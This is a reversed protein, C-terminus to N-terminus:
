NTLCNRSISMSKMLKAPVGEGTFSESNSHSQPPTELKTSVTNSILDIIIIIVINELTSMNSRFPVSECLPPESAEKVRPDRQGPDQRTGGVCMCLSMELTKTLYLITREQNM